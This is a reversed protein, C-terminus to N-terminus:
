GKIAVPIIGFPELGAAGGDEATLVWIGGEHVAVTHEWHAADSGDAASVTWGDALVHVEDSGGTIMPEIAVVLGPAVKPGKHRVEYNFVAPEEHMHRGIGHGIYDELIGYERDHEEAKENVFAEIAAGVENLHKAGALAAIGVWLSQETVDSLQQRAAVVEADAGDTGPVVMSFASDGNWGNIEAGCDISILDGAVLIRDERPIGHVVEDNISSCITHFYGEVLQFNSHAGRANMTDDAIKDLALTSVGPKVAARVADLAARTILGAERM